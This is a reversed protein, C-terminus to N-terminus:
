CKGTCKGRCKKKASFGDSSEVPVYFIEYSKGDVDISDPIANSINEIEDRNYRSKDMQVIIYNEDQTWDFYVFPRIGHFFDRKLRLSKSLEVGHRAAYVKEQYTPNKGKSVIEEIGILKM